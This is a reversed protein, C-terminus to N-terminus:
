QLNKSYKRLTKIQKDEVKLDRLFFKKEFTKKQM